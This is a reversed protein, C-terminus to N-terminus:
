CFGLVIGAPFFLAGIARIVMEGCLEDMNFLFIINQVYGYLALVVLAVAGLGVLHKKM